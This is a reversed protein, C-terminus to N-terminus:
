PWKALDRLHQPCSINKEDDLRSGADNLAQVAAPQLAEWNEAPEFLLHTSTTPRQGRFERWRGVRARGAFSNIIMDGPAYM